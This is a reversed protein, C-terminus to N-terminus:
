IMCEDYYQASFPPVQDSPNKQCPGATQRGSINM